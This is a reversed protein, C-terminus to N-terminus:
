TTHKCRAMFWVSSDSQSGYRSQRSVDQLVNQLKTLDSLEEYMKDAPAAGMKIFDGFIIPHSIFSEAEVNQLVNVVGCYNQKLKRCCM